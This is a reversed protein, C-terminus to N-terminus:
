AGEGAIPSGTELGLKKLARRRAEGRERDSVHVLGAVRRLLNTEYDHLRGDAYVVEWLMEILQVREEHSFQTKIQHTFAHVEVARRQRESALALLEDAEKPELGFRERVLREIVALEAPHEEADLRAAELLLAVAAIEPETRSKKAGAHPRTEFLAKIRTLMADSYLLGAFGTSNGATKRPRGAM